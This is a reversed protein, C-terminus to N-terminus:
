AVPASALGLLNRATNESREYSEGCETCTHVDTQIEQLSGCNHCKRSLNKPDLETVKTMSEKLFRELSSLCANRSNARILKDAPTEEPSPLKQSKSRDIEMIRATKYKRRLEAAFNRYLDNRQGYLQDRLNEQYEYVHKDRKRWAELMEFMGEDGPVRNERWRLTLSALRAIAHWQAITETAEHLWSKTQQEKLWMVLQTVHENFLDDRYSQMDRVKGMGVLWRFPLALMGDEGDSGSYSAVRLTGDPQKRWGMSIGVTGDTARDTKEWRAQSLVFQLRWEYKTAIRRRILHVWKIQAEPPLPRHMTFPVDAFIPKGGEDSGIRFRCLADGLKRMIGTKATRTGEVEVRGLKVSVRQDEGSLLEEVTIGKQVQLALHGDGTFRAFQPPAGSRKKSMAQEVLLYTGWYLQSEARIRRDTENSAVEIEAQRAKWKKSSFLETRLAKRETYLEKRKAKLEKIAKQKIPDKAKASMHSIHDKKIDTRLAEMASEVEALAAEVKVLKPSLQLLLEEVKARRGHEVEVIRNRYAHALRIQEDVKDSNTIPANAGYSYIRSPLSKHGFM